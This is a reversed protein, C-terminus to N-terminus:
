TACLMDANENLFTWLGWGFECTHVDRVCEKLLAVCVHLKPQRISHAVACKPRFVCVRRDPAGYLAQPLSVLPTQFTISLPPSQTWNVGCTGALGYNQWQVVFVNVCEYRNVRSQKYKRCTWMTLGQDTLKTFAIPLYVTNHVSSMKIMVACYYCNFGTTLMINWYCSIFTHQTKNNAFGLCLFTKSYKQTHTSTHTSCM